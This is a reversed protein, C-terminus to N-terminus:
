RLVFAFSLLAGFAVANGLEIFGLRHVNLPRPRRFFWCLGRVVLPLFAVAILAPMLRLHWAALLLLALTLEGLLFGAGAQFREVRFRLKAGQLQLQVFQIQFTAFLWNALWMALALRDLRGSVVYCAAAATSTLGFAGIVQAIARAQRHRRLGAQALFAAGAVGGLPLLLLNRGHWLLGALPLVAMLALMGISTIVFRREASTRLRIPGSGVLSEVPTRLWFLAIAALALLLAPGPQRSRSLGVAAGSMLPILLIGWAGHERPVVLARRRQSRARRLAANDM